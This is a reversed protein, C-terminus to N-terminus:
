EDMGDEKIMEKWAKRSREPQGRDTQQTLIDKSGKAVVVMPEDAWSRKQNQCERLVSVLTLTM